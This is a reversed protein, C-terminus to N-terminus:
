QEALFTIGGLSLWANSGGFHSIVGSTTIDVRCAVNPNTQVCFLLQIGPRYGAPLVAISAASGSMCLGRLTVLGSSLRRYGSPSYPAPYDVWGNIYPFPNWITDPAVTRAELSNATSTLEPLLVARYDQNGRQGSLIEFAQKLSLVADRLSTPEITPEPIAPYKAVM